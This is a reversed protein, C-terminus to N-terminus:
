TTKAAKISEIVIARSGGRNFVRGSVEVKEGAFPLLKENQGKAPMAEDIPWYIKGDGALIVLPSGAQACAKACEGSIPKELNKTYTCASDIVYGEVAVAKKNAGAYVAFAILVMSFLAALQGFRTKM